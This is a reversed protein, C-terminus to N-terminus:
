LSEKAACATKDLADRAAKKADALTDSQGSPERGVLGWLYKREGSRLRCELVRALWTEGRWLEWKGWNHGKSRRWRAPKSRASM